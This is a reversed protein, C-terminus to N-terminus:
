ALMHVLTLDPDELAARAMALLNDYEDRVGPSEPPTVRALEAAFERVDEDSFLELPTDGGGVELEGGRLRRGGMILGEFWESRGGLYRSLETTSIMQKGSFGRDRPVCLAVLLDYGLNGSVYARKSKRTTKRKGGPNRSGRTDYYVSGDLIGIAEEYIERSELRPEQQVRGAKDLGAIVERLLRILPAPDDRDFFAKYAPLVKDRYARADFLLIYNDVSVSVPPRAVVSPEAVACRAVPLACFAIFLVTLLPGPNLKM